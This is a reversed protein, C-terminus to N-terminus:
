KSKLISLLHFENAWSMECVAKILVLNTLSIWKAKEQTLVALQLVNIITKSQLTLTIQLCMSLPLFFLLEPSFVERNFGMRGTLWCLATWKVVTNPNTSCKCPVGTALSLTKKLFDEWAFLMRQRTLCRMPRHHPHLAYWLSWPSDLLPQM